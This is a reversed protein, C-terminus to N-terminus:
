LVHHNYNSNHNNNNNNNDDDSSSGKENGYLSTTELAAFNRHQSIEM